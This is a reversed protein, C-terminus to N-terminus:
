DGADEPRLSPCGADRPRRLWRGRAIPLGQTSRSRTASLAKSARGRRTSRSARRSCRQTSRCDWPRRERRGAACIAWRMHMQFCSSCGCNRRTMASLARTAKRVAQPKVLGERYWRVAGQLMWGLIQSAEHEILYDKLHPDIEKPRVIFAAMNFRRAIAPDFATSPPPRTAARASVPSVRCWIVAWYAAPPKVAEM